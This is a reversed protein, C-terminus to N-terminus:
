NSRMWAELVASQMSARIEPAMEALTSRLYSREPMHSGPHNVSRFFVMRGVRNWYFALVSALRPVIVHPSTVGGYEHIRAYPVGASGIHAMIRTGDDVLRNYISARLRGSRVKLVDGSLKMQVRFQFILALDYLRQRLVMRLTPSMGTLRAIVRQDGVLEAFIM